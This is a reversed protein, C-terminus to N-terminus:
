PQVNGEISGTLDKKVKKRGDFFSVSIKENITFIQQKNLQVTGSFDDTKLRKGTSMKQVEMYTIPNPSSKSLDAYFTYLYMGDQQFGIETVTTAAVKKKKDSKFSFLVFAMVIMCLSLLVKKM